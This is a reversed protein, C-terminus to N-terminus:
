FQIQVMQFENNRQRKKQSPGLQAPTLQSKKVKEQPPPPSPFPVRPSSHTRPDVLKVQNKASSSIPFFPCPRPPTTPEGKLIKGRREASNFLPCKSRERDVAIPGQDRREQKRQELCPPCIRKKLLACAACGNACEMCQWHKNQMPRGCDPCLPPMANQM